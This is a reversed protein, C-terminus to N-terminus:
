NTADAMMEKVFSQKPDVLPQRGSDRIKIAEELDVHEREMIDRLEVSKAHGCSLTKAIKYATMQGTPLEQPATAKPPTPKSARKPRSVKTIQKPETPKPESVAVPAPVPEPESKKTKKNQKQM